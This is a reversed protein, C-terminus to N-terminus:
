QVESFKLLDSIEMNKLLKRRVRDAVGSVIEAGDDAPDIHAHLPRTGSPM